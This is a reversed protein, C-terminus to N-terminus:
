ISFYIFFLLLIYYINRYFPVKLLFYIYIAKLYWTPSKVQLSWFM